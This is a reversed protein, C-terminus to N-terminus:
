VRRNTPALNNSPFYANKLYQSVMRQTNFFSGNIAIAARMVTAYKEPRQYYTAVIMELKDYLSRLEGDTDKAGAGIAWGTMDELCGEVWWGDLVSLSPVGNLAAKMGSTGSAEQPKQPTNLWLDVGATLLGGWNLDYNEIYVVKLREGEMAAAAEFVRRILAKGDDDKPHAKGGFLIQMPGHRGAIARLRERDSFLMDARKYTTARRAFGITFTHEDLRVGTSAQVAEMMARKAEVHSALIKPLPLGIAYRLYANDRRWEPLHLDFLTRFAPAAWTAAHVGNTIARVAYDPFMNRSIEGHRMAVGNVYRSFRLALHTMNLVGEPCCQTVDLVDARDQGLVQRALRCHFQDHGAPVPTHTTFVCRQRVEEIDGPSATKLFKEGVQDELLAITLLAAHGENMHFVQIGRHGLRQLMRVGGMGLLAEQCLRYHNDGGYLHDTLQQDWSSNEPLSADLLYVPVEHGTVGRIKYRWAQILVKRGEIPVWASREMLEAKTEPQWEQPEEAQNGSRDLRQRFYGKRYVLTVAVMPVELDAAARLTDGALVGLGGSYTPIGPELAIEMSFYAVQPESM